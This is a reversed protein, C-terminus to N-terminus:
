RLSIKGADILHNNNSLKYLYLGSSLDDVRITENQEITRSVIQKGTLDYIELDLHTYGEDWSFTVTESAPNPFVSIPARQMDEIGSPGGGGFDSYYATQRYDFIGTKMIM